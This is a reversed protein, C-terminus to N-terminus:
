KLDDLSELKGLKVLRSQIAVNTRQHGVSMERLSKSSDIEATLESDEQQTWPQGARAPLVGRKRSRAKEKELAAVASFLARVIQPNQYPSNSPFEEGTFPDIGDALPKLIELAQTAEM